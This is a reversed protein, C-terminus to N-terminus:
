YVVDDQPHPVQPLAPPTGTVSPAPIIGTAALFLAVEDGPGDPTYVPGVPTLPQPDDRVIELLSRTEPDADWQSGDYAAWRGRETRSEIRWTM